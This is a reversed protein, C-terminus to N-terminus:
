AKVFHLCLILIIGLMKPSEWYKTLLHNRNQIILILHNKHYALPGFSEKPADRQSWSKYKHCRGKRRGRFKTPRMGNMQMALPMLYFGRITDAIEMFSFLATGLRAIFVYHM